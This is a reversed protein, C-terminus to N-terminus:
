FEGEHAATSTETDDEQVQQQKPADEKHSIGSVIDDIRLLMCAANIATKITQVKVAFPEWIDLEQMDVLKGKEGDIGLTSNGGQKHKMRLQTLLRVTDTGCNSALTRPIVEFAEALAAYPFQHIGDVTKSKGDIYTAIAMETAGGGPLLRPDYVVNRAVNMCDHLNRELEMLVDKSAGRMLITCAKPEKCEEMFTFYDDGIKRVEFLGCNTGIDSETIEDVSNVINAGTARAIRNNDSKRLRRLATINNKVFFHQALDSLGKETVVVDPKFAIIKNCIKEIYEEEMKLIVNWDETKTIEVNTQSEGKKYELPCDLLLIRPNEIRRRMKSHTVDKNFMVGSLVRCDEIEGGPIKEVKAYRKIDVETGNEPSEHFVTLVARLALKCMMDAWRRSFKTGLSSNIIKLMAAEDKIDIPKTLTEVYELASELARSYAETIIKPHMNREIFKQSVILVEGALIIVSTTGDGVEEDQTRALEIMSKAAPHAVDVERLIANGDNTMLIGGMPDLIMKLM